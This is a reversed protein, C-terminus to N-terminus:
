WTTAAYPRSRSASSKSLGVREAFSLYDALIEEFRSQDNTSWIWRTVALIVHRIGLLGVITSHRYTQTLLGKAPM